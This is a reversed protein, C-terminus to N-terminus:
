QIRVPDLRILGFGGPETKQRQDRPHVPFLSQTMGGGHGPVTQRDSAILDVVTFGDAGRPVAKVHHNRRVSALETIFRVANQRGIQVANEVVIREPPMEQVSQAAAFTQPRQRRLRLVSELGCQVPQRIM